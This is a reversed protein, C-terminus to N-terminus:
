GHIPIFAVDGTSGVECRYASVDAQQAWSSRIEILSSSRGFLGRGGYTTAGGDMKREDAPDEPNILRARIAITLSYCDNGHRNLAVQPWTLYDALASCGLAGRPAKKTYTVLM